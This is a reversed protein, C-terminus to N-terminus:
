NLIHIYKGTCSTDNDNIYFRINKGAVLSTMLMSYVVKNNESNNKWSLWGGEPCTTSGVDLKFKIVDPMYSAELTVVQGTLFELSLVKSSFFVVITFFLVKM